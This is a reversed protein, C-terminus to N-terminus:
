RLLQGADEVTRLLDDDCVAALWAPTVLVLDPTGSRDPAAVRLLRDCDALLNRLEATPAGRPRVDFSALGQLYRQADDTTAGDADLVGAGRGVEVLDLRGGGAVVGVCVRLFELVGADVAPAAMVALAPPASV